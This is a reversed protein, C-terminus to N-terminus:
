DRVETARVTNVSRAVRVLTVPASRQGGGSVGGTIRYGLKLAGDLTRYAYLVDVNAGTAAQGAYLVALREIRWDIQNLPSPAAQGPRGRDLGSGALVSPSSLGASQLWNRLELESNLLEVGFRPRNCVSWRAFACFGGALPPLGNALGFGGGPQGFGFGMGQQQTIKVNITSVQRDVAIVTFPTTIAQTTMMNPAPTSEVAIIDFSGNTQPRVDTVTVSYGGTNRTGLAVVVLREKFFDIQPMSETFGDLRCFNAWDAQNSILKATFKQVGGSTGSAVSRWPVTKQNLGFQASASASILVTAMAVAGTVLRGNM